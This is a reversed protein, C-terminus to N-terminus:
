TEESTLFTYLPSLTGVGRRPLHTVENQGDRPMLTAAGLDEESWVPGQWSPGPGLDTAHLDPLHEVGPCGSSGPPLLGNLSLSLNQSILTPPCLLHSSIRKEQTNKERELQKDAPRGPLKWCVKPVLVGSLVVCLGAIPGPYSHCLHPM